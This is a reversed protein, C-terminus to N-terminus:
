VNYSKTAKELPLVQWERFEDEARQIIDVLKLTRTDLNQTIGVVLYKIPRGASLVDSTIRVVDGIDIDFYRRPVSIEIIQQRTTLYRFTDIFYFGFTPTSNVDYSFESSIFSTNRPDQFLFNEEYFRGDKHGIYGIEDFFYTNSTRGDESFVSREVFNDNIRCLGYTDITNYDEASVFDFDSDDLDTVDSSNLYGIVRYTLKGENNFFIFVGQVKAIENLTDQLSGLLEAKQQPIAFNITQLTEGRNDIITENVTDVIPVYNNSYFEITATDIRDDSLKLFNKAYDYFIAPFNSINTIGLNERDPTQANFIVTSNNTYTTESVKPGIVRGFLVENGTFPIAQNGPDSYIISEVDDLLEVGYIQEVPDRFITYHENNRLFLSGELTDKMIVQTITPITITTIGTNELSNIANAESTNWGLALLAPWNSASIGLSFNEGTVPFGFIDGIFFYFGEVTVFAQEGPYDTNELIITQQSSGELDNIVDLVDQVTASSGSGPLRYRGLIYDRAATGGQAVYDWGLITGGGGNTWVKDQIKTNDGDYYGLAWKRNNTKSPTEANYDVNVADVGNVIGYIRRMNYGQEEDRVSYSASDNIGKYTQNPTPTEVRDQFQIFRDALELALLEVNYSHNQVIGSSILKGNAVDSLEGIFHYLEFSANKYNTAYVFDVNEDPAAIEIRSLAAPYFGTPNDSIDRTITPVTQISSSWEIVESSANLPEKYTRAIDTSFYQRYRIYTTFPPVSSFTIIQTAPDFTFPVNDGVGPEPNTFNFDDPSNSIQFAQNGTGKFDIALPEGYPFFLKNTDFIKSKDVQFIPEISFLYISKKTEDALNDNYSM